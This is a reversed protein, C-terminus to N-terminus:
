LYRELAEVTGMIFESWSIANKVKVDFTHRHRYSWGPVVKCGPFEAEILSKGRNLPIRQKTYVRFKSAMSTPRVKIFSFSWFTIKGIFQNLWVEDVVRNHDIKVM